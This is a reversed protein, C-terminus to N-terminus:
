KRTSKKKTRKIPLLGKEFDLMIEAQQYPRALRNKIATIRLHFGATYKKGARLRQVRKIIELELRVSAYFKLAKGGPPKTKKGYAADPNDRVQNICFLICNARPVRAGMRRFAQSLLLARVQASRDRKIEDLDDGRDTELEARTAMGAISDIVAVLLGTRGVHRLAKSFSGFVGEVTEDDGLILKRIDIGYQEALWEDYNGECPYLIADGGMRQVEAILAYALGTKCTAEGGYVEVIRGVPWGRGERDLVLDLDPVGSPVWLRPEGQDSTSGMHVRDSGLVSAVADALADTKSRQKVRRIIRKKRM